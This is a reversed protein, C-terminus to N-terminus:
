DAGSPGPYQEDTAERRLHDTPDDGQAIGALGPEGVLQGLRALASDITRQHAAIAALVSEPSRRDQGGRACPNVAKLDFAAADIADARAQAERAERDAAALQALAAGLESAPAKDRRLTAARSRWHTAQPRRREAEALHPAM